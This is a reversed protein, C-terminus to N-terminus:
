QVDTATDESQPVETEMQWTLIVKAYNEFFNETINNIAYYTYNKLLMRYIKDTNYDCGPNLALLAAEGEEMRRKIKADSIYPAINYDEKFEEILEEM